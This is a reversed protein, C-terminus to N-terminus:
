SHENPTQPTPQDSKKGYKAEYDKVMKEISPPRIYPAYRLPKSRLTEYYHPPFRNM